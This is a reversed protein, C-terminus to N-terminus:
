ALLGAKAAHRRLAEVFSLGLDPATELAKVRAELPAVDPVVPVPKMELAAVRQEIPTLDPGLTVALRAELTKVRAAIPEVSAKLVKIVTDSFTAMQAMQQCRGETRRRLDACFADPDDVKGTMMRVCAEHNEHECNHGFPM